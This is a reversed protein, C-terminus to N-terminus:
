EPIVHETQSSKGYQMLDGESIAYFNTLNMAFMQRFFIMLEENGVSM